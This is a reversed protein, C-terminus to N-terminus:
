EAAILHSPRNSTASEVKQFGTVQQWTQAIETPTIVVLDGTKAAMLAAATAGAEGTILHIRDPSAGGEIAGEQLLNM